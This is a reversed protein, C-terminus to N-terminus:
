SFLVFLEDIIIFSNFLHFITYHIIYKTIFLAYFYLKKEVIDKSITNHLTIINVNNIRFHLFHLAWYQKCGEKM